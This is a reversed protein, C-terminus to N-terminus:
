RAKGAPKEEPIIRIHGENLKLNKGNKEKDKTSAGDHAICHCGPEM